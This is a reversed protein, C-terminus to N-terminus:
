SEYHEGESSTRGPQLASALLTDPVKNLRLLRQAKDFFDSMLPGGASRSAGAGFIFVSKIEAGQKKKKAKRWEWPPM